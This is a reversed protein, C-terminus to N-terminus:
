YGAAITFNGGNGVLIFSPVPSGACGDGETTVAPTTTTLQNQAETAM